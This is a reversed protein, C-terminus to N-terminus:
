SHTGDLYEVASIIQRSPAHRQQKGRIQAIASVVMAGIIIVAAIIRVKHWRPGDNEKFVNDSM